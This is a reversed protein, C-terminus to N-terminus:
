GTCCAMLVPSEGDITREVSAEVGEGAPGWSELVLKENVVEGGAFLSCQENVLEVM